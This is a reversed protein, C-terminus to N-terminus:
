ARNKTINTAPLLNKQVVHMQKIIDLTAERAKISVENLTMLLISFRPSTPNKAFEELFAIAFQEGSEKYVKDIIEGCCEEVVDYGLFKSVMYGNGPQIPHETGCIECTVPGDTKLDWNNWYPGFGSGFKSPGMPKKVFPTKAM